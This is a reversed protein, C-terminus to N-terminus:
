YDTGEAVIMNGSADFKIGNSMGSPSRFITTKGSAPDFKWIHGAEISGHEDRAVHSFTIESFYVIGDPAVCVGETLVRSTFLKEVQAGPPVIPDDAFARGAPISLVIIAVLSPITIPVLRLRTTM